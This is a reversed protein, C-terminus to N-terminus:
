IGHIDDFSIYLNYDNDFFFQKYKDSLAVDTVLKKICHIPAIQRLCSRDFKSHDALMITSKFNRMIIKYLEAEGPNNTTYGADISIGAAGLFAKHGYMQELNREAFTGSMYVLADKCVMDGEPITVSINHSNELEGAVKFDTTIVTLNSKFKINKALHQCTSGNGIFIVDNNEILEAAIQAIHNKENDFVDNINTIGVEFNESNTENLIAGGHVKTLFNEKELIELDRRITTLSVNLLSALTNVDVHNYELLIGRIKRLRESAFM